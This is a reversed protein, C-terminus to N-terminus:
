VPYQLDLVNGVKKHTKKKKYTNSNGQGYKSFYLIYKSQSHQSHLLGSVSTQM